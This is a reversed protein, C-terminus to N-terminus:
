RQPLWSPRNKSLFEKFRNFVTDPEAEIPKPLEGRHYREPAGHDLRPLSGSNRTYFSGTESKPLQIVEALPLDPTLSVVLEAQENSPM